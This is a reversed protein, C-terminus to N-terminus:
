PRFRYVTAAAGQYVPIMEPVRALRARVSPERAVVYVPRGDSYRALRALTRQSVVSDPSSSVLTEAVSQFAALRTRNVGTNETLFQHARILWGDHQIHALAGSSRRDDLGVLLQRRGLAPITLYTDVFLANVPTRQAIWRYLADQDPDRDRLWRGDSVVADAVSDHAFYRALDASVPLLMVFALALAGARHTHYLEGLPLAVPTSLALVSMGLMKYEAGSPITMMMYMGETVLASLLLLALLDAHKRWHQALTARHTWALVLPLVLYLGLNLSHRRLTRLSPVLRVAAAGSKGMTLSLIFPVTVAAGVALLVLLAVGARRLRAGRLVFYCAATGTCGMIGVWAPPYIFGAGIIAAGILCYMWWGRRGELALAAIGLLDAAFFVLGLQNDNIGTFKTEPIFRWELNTHLLREVPANLPGAVLPSVGVFAVLVAFVRFARDASFLCALRDIIIALLVLSVLDTLAFARPPSIPVVRMLWAILAHHGYMYRLPVGAMLPNQPPLGREYIAYVISTHMLGHWYTAWNQDFQPPVLALIPVLFTWMPANFRLLLYLVAVVLAASVISTLISPM